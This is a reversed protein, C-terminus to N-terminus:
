PHTPPPPPPPPPPMGGPPMPLPPLPAPIKNSVAPITRLYLYVSALDQDTLNSFSAWPMPPLIPRGTGMHKGTRIAQMFTEQSWDGLGSASDPTLNMAFSVGWPGAFATFSQDISAMWPPMPPPAMGIM